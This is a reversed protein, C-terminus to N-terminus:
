CCCAIQKHNSTVIKQWRKTSKWGKMSEIDKIFTFFCFCFILDFWFVWVIRSFRNQNLFQLHYHCAKLPCIFARLCYRILFFLNSAFIYITCFLQLSFIFSFLVIFISRQYSKNWYFLRKIPFVYVHLKIILRITASYLHNFQRFNIYKQFQYFSANCSKLRYRKRIWFIRLKLSKVDILGEPYM